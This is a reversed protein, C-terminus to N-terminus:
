HHSFYKPLLYNPAVMYIPSSHTASSAPGAAHTAVLPSIVLYAAILVLVMLPLIWRIFRKLM